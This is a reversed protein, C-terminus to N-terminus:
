KEWFQEAVVTLVEELEPNAQFDKWLLESGNVLGGLTGKSYGMVSM